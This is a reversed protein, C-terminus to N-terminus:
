KCEKKGGKDLVIEFVGGRNNPNIAGANGAVVREFMELASSVITEDGGPNRFMM